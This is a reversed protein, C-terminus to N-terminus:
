PGLLGSSALLRNRMLEAGNVDGALLLASLEEAQTHHGADASNTLAAIFDRLHQLLQERMERQAPTLPDRPPSKTSIRRHEVPASLSRVAAAAQAVLNAPTQPTQTSSSASLPGGQAVAALPTLIQVQNRALEAVTRQLDRLAATLEAMQQVVPDVQEPDLQRYPTTSAPTGQSAGPAAAAVAPAPAAPQAESDVEMSAPAASAAPESAAPPAVDEAGVAPEVPAEEEVEEGPASFDAVEMPFPPLLLLKRLPNPPRLWMKFGLPRQLPPLPNNRPCRPSLRPRLWMGLPASRRM